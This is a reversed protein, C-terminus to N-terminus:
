SYLTSYIKFYRFLGCIIVCIIKLSQLSQLDVSNFQLVSGMALCLVWFNDVTAGILLLFCCVVNVFPKKELKM